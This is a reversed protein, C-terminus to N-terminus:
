RRKSAAIVLLMDPFARQDNTEHPEDRVLPASDFGTSQANLISRSQFM